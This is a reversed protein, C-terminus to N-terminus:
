KDKNFYLVLSCFAVGGLCVISWLINEWITGTNTIIAYVNYIFGAILSLTLIAMAITERGDETQWINKREQHSEQAEEQAKQKAMEEKREKRLKAQAAKRKKAEREKQTPGSVMKNIYKSVEASDVNLSFTMDMIEDMQEDTPKIGMCYKDILSKLKAPLM